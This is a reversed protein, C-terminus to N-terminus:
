IGATLHFILVTYSTVPVNISNILLFTLIVNCIYYNSKEQISVQSQIAVQKKM